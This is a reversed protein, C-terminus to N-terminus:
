LVVIIVFISVGFIPPVTNDSWFAYRAYSGLRINWVIGCARFAVGIQGVAHLVDLDDLSGFGLLWLLVSLSQKLINEACPEKLQNISHRTPM